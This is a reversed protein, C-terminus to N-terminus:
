TTYIGKYILPADNNIQSWVYPTLAKLYNQSNYGFKIWPSQHNQSLQLVQYM